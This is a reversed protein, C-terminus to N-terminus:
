SVGEPLGVAVDTRGVCDAGLVETGGASVDLAETGGAPVDLVETGGAPVSGESDTSRGAVVIMELGSSVRVVFIGPMPGIPTSGDRVAIAILPAALKIVGPCCVVILPTAIENSVEAENTTIPPVVVNSSGGDVEDVRVAGATTPPVVTSM